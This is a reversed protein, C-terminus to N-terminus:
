EVTLAVARRLRKTFATDFDALAWVPLFDRQRLHAIAHAFTGVRMALAFVDLLGAGWPELYADRLRDFWPDGPPLRNVEELFAFTIVLSAFPHAISSDGWDLIRVGEGRAFLNWLHLDDHQITEPVGCAGLEACSAEFRAAFGRLRDREHEELPLDRRLLEEFRAPLTAMRLDPVGHALHDSAEAAEGRQLEAYLPLAALWAEPPNGLEGVSEGADALLLWAREEDHDIVDAVRDPWRSFLGATLRPEFAQVPACAKFWVVGDAVPVRFVTAWPRDHAMEIAGIPQVHQHIWAKAAPLDVEDVM